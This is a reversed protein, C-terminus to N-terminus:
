TNIVQVQERLTPTEETDAYDVLKGPKDDRQKPERLLIVEEDPTRGIDAFTICSGEILRLLRSGSGLVTQKGSVAVNLAQDKITFKREGATLTIFSMEEASMVKLIDSLTKGLAVGKYRSKSRLIQHSQTVHVQGGLVELQRHVLDCVVAEVTAEYTAQAAANRRRKRKKYYAEYGEMFRLVDQVLATMATSACCRHPNFPRAPIDDTTPDSKLPAAGSNGSPTM